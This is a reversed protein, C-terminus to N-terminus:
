KVKYLSEKQILEKKIDNIIMFKEYEVKFFKSSDELNSKERSLQKRLKKTEM